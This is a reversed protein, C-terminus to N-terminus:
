TYGGDDSSNVDDSDSKVYEDSEDTSWLINHKRVFDDLVQTPASADPGQIGSNAMIVKIMKKLHRRHRRAKSLFVKIKEWTDRTLRLYDIGDEDRLSKDETNDEFAQNVIQELESLDDNRHHMKLIVREILKIRMSVEEASLTTQKKKTRTGKSTTGEGKNTTGEGQSTTTEGKRTTRKGKNGKSTTGEGKSTTHEREDNSDDDSQNEHYTHSTRPRLRHGGRAQKLTPLNEFDESKRLTENHMRNKRVYQMVERFDTLYMPFRHELVAPTDATGKHRLQDSFSTTLEYMLSKPNFQQSWHAHAHFNKIRELTREAVQVGQKTKVNLVAYTGFGLYIQQDDQESCAAHLASYADTDKWLALADEATQVRKRDLTTAIEKIQTEDLGPFHQQVHHVEDRHRPILLKERGHTAIEHLMGAPLLIANGDCGFGGVTCVYEADFRKSVPTSHFPPNPNPNARLRYSKYSSGYLHFNLVSPAHWHVDTRCSGDSEYYTGNGKVYQDTTWTDQWRKWESADLEVTDSATDRFTRKLLEQLANDTRETGTEPINQTQSVNVKRWKRCANRTANAVITVGVSCDPLAGLARCIGYWIQWSM